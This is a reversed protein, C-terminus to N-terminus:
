CRRARQFALGNAAAGSVFRDASWVLLVLGILVAGLAMM